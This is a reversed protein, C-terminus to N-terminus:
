AMVCAALCKYSVLRSLYVSQQNQVSYKKRKFQLYTIEIM